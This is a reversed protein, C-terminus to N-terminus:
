DVNVIDSIMSTDKDSIFTFHIEPNIPCNKMILHRLMLCRGICYQMIDDFEKRYIVPIILEIKQNNIM